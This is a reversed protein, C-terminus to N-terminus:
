PMMFIAFEESFIQERNICPIAVNHWIWGWASIASGLTGPMKPTSVSMRCTNFDGMMIMNQEPCLTYSKFYHVIPLFKFKKTHCQFLINLLLLQPRYPLRECKLYVVRMPRCKFVAPVYINNQRSHFYEEGPFQVTHWYM